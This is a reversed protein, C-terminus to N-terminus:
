DAWTVREWSACRIMPKKGWNRGWRREQLVALERLREEPSMRALRRHEATNEEEFSHFIRLEKTRNM